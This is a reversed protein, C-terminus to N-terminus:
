RDDNGSRRYKKAQQYWQFNLPRSMDLIEEPVGEGIHILDEEEGEGDKNRPKIDSALNKLTGSSTHFKVNALQEFVRVYWADMGDLMDKIDAEKVTYKFTEKVSNEEQGKKVARIDVQPMYDLRAAEKWAQCWASQRVYGDGFYNSPVHLIIHYHPHVRMDGDQGRTFELSRFWGRVISFEKRHRFREWAKSMMKLTSGLDSVDCNRVTLTMFIFRYAPYEAMIEPLRQMALAKMKLSRRWACVPCGRVHCFNASHLRLRREVSGDEGGDRYGWVFALEQACEYMRSIHKENGGYNIYIDRVVDNYGKHRDWIKDRPSYKALADYDAEPPGQADGLPIDDRPIDEEEERVIREIAALRREWEEIDPINDFMPNVAISRM